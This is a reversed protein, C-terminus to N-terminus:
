SSWRGRKEMCGSAVSMSHAAQAAVGARKKHGARDVGTGAVRGRPVGRDDRIWRTSRIHGRQEHLRLSVDAHEAYYQRFKHMFHITDDVALGLVIGGILLNAGEIAIGTWGMLGLTLLIPALNPILAVLGLRLSGIVLLLMPAIVLFALSYSRTMTMTAVAILRAKLAAYGTIAVDAGDGVISRVSSELAEIFAPYLMGDVWPVKLSIRAMSLPTNAFDYLDDSGANEFLLMEQAVLERSQPIAYYEPRDENVARHIEKVVDVISLAKGVYLDGNRLSGARLGIEEIQELLRPDHLADGRHTDVLVEVSVVGELKRNIVETARRLPEDEPFWSLEDQRFELQLAGILAVLLLLAAGGVVAKPHRTGLAGCAVLARDLLPMGPAPRWHLLARRPLVALLAPVLTVTFLLALMVGVPAVVGLNAIPVLDATAFSVLGGATTLSTMLIALGSHRLAYAIATERDAGGHLQQFFITLLHVSDCVGVVLLFPPLIQNITTLPLGILVMLGMTCVLSLGVVLLPLVVGFVSRFLFFLLAVVGIVSLATLTWIDGMMIVASRESLVPGGAIHIRLSPSEYAALVARLAALLEVREQSSLYVPRASAESTPADSEFGGLGDAEVGLSTYTELQVILATFREDEAILNNLYIPNSRVRQQVEALEGATEPWEALLEDVVLEQELGRIWRANILSSIRRVHPVREELDAHLDRLLGLFELDFVSSSPELGVVIAQERGFEARFERYTVLVPDDHQLNGEISTDIAIEAIQSAPALSLLVVTCIAAWRHRFVFRGWAEFAADIREGV